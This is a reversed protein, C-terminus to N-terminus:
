PGLAVSAEVRDPRASRSDQRGDAAVVQIVDHIVDHIGRFDDPHHTLV